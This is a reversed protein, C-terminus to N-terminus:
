IIDFYKFQKVKFSDTNGEQERVFLMDQELSIKLMKLVYQMMGDQNLETIHKGSATTPKTVVLDELKGTQTICKHKKM